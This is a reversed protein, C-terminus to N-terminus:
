PASRVFEIKGKGTDITGTMKGGSVTVDCKDFAVSRGPQPSTQITLKNGKLIGTVPIPDNEDPGVWGTIKGDTQEFSAKGTIAGKATSITVRWNGAVDAARAQAVLLVVLLVNLLGLRKL